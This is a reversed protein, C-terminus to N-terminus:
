LLQSAPIRDSAEAAWQQEKGWRWLIFISSLIFALVLTFWAGDPVKLLVATMFAGDLSAFVLFFFFVVPAPIRWTVIAVLSVMCTTIM